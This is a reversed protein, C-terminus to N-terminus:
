GGGRFDDPARGNVQGVQISVALKGQGDPVQVASGARQPVPLQGSDLVLRGPGHSAQLKGVVGDAIDAEGVRGAEGIADEVHGPVLNPLYDGARAGEHVHLNVNGPRSVPGSYDVHQIRHLGPVLRRAGTRHERAHNAWGDRRAFAQVVDEVAHGDDGNSLRGGALGHVPPVADYVHPALARLEGGEGPSEIEDDADHPLRPEVRLLKAPLLSEVDDVAGVIGPGVVECGAPPSEFNGVVQGGGGPGGCGRRNLGQLEPRHAIGEGADEIDALKVAVTPEVSLPHAPLGGEDVGVLNKVPRNEATEHARGAGPVAGVEVLVARYDPLQIGAVSRVEVEGPREEPEVAGQADLLLVTDTAVSGLQQPHGVGVACHQGPDPVPLRAHVHHHHAPFEFAGPDEGGDEAGLHGEGGVVGTEYM